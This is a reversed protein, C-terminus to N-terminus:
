HTPLMEQRRSLMGIQAFLETLIWFYRSISIPLYKKVSTRICLRQASERHKPIRFPMESITMEGTYREATDDPRSLLITIYNPMTTNQSFHSRHSPRGKLNEPCIAGRVWVQSWPWSIRPGGEPPTSSPTMEVPFHHDHICSTNFFRCRFMSFAQDPVIYGFMTLEATECPRLVSFAARFADFDHALLKAFFLFFVRAGGASGIAYQIPRAFTGTNNASPIRSGLPGLQPKLGLYIPSNCWFRILDPM